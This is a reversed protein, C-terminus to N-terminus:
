SLSEPYAGPLTPGALTVRVVSLLSQPSKVSAQKRVGNRHAFFFRGGALIQTIVAIQAM